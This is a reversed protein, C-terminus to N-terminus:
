EHMALLMDEMALQRNVNRSLGQLVAEIRAAWESIQEITVM